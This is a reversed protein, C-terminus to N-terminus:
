SKSDPAGPYKRQLTRVSLGLIRAAARKDGKVEELIREIYSRELEELTPQLSSDRGAIGAFEVRLDRMTVLPGRTLTAAREVVNELERVNGPWRHGVLWAMAAEDFGDLPKSLAGAARELFHRALLPIDEPRERLAPVRIPIVALRYYLDERFKGERLLTALDRNTASILRFDVRVEERGGVSRVTKDQLVRLLKAQLALPMDGIEDLFLTGGRAALLLGSRKQTAGTFAGREHGFLESELLGEPLAACNVAVFPGDRRGSNWHVARAVLEKGTGSEGLLLVAADSAAVDRIQEFLAQVPKSQGILNEFSYQKGVEQRLRRNEERLRRDELARGVALSVEGMKFPKTLYDFAGHRIAEIANELNGFATMLIVRCGPQLRQADRLLEIGGVDDMVIDTLMVDFERGSLAALAETSRTASTVNWGESELHRRLVTVMEPDDDVVLIRASV